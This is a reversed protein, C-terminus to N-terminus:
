KKAGQEVTQGATQGATRDVARDESQRDAEAKRSFLGSLRKTWRVSSDAQYAIHGPISLEVETGTGTRSLVGLKAGIKEARERMGSLGWHGERGAELVHPDIGVGNDRVVICLSRPLYEVEIEIKSAKSHNFANTAAERGIRYAEGRIFPHLPRPLGEAIVRFDIQKDTAVEESIRSFEEELDRSDRQPSRLSRIANRGEESVQRMLQLVREVLAKAPSDAPLRDNAVDLQMSASVFGQLLTDHLDRAIREREELREELRSQMQRALQRMRLNYLLLVVLGLTLLCSIQFWWAQWFAPEIKFSITAESGDWLGDSNSSTVRFRYTGPGLNTYVAQRATTSDTWGHDFGELQYRFRIREPVSLSLGTYNFIIRQSPGPIHIVGQMAVPAGDNSVAEIHPIAPLSSGVREPDIMSIGRNLSFWVHGHQDTVVSHDRRVGEIGHLGDALGYERIDGEKLAGNLLGARNMKLVHSSTGVWLSGKGDEAIGLIPERLSEPLAQVSHIKDSSLIALGGATGIWLTGDPDPLLSIVDDSPLGDHLTYTHLQGHSLASLGGRTGFWMTGDPGEEISAVSNSALGNATTYTTFVGDKLESVGGSLTGAWVTGDRNEHVAYVSNQALGDAQTYTETVPPGQGFVFHTLGGQQRGAWLDDKGGYMSYIVDSGPGAKLVTTVKGDRMWYLGGNSPGFWVRGESDVYIPGNSESPLGESASYTVFPSDRLREIGQVSGIWINGERDERLATIEGPSEKDTEQLVSGDKINLRLLGRSTGIWLNGDRDRMLASIQAHNLSPPIDKTSIATGDWLALGSDTGIWMQGDRLPLLSNIKRDPLGESAPIIQGNSLYFLGDSRTGIWIRGDLTEALSIVLATQFIKSSALSKIEKRGYLIEGNMLNSLLVGGSFTRSMATIFSGPTLDPTIDEFVGNRYRFISGQTRVWLGGEADTTLGLVNTISPFASDLQQATVFNLGDFRFLGKATGIWLYGDPTQTFGNVQGGTFGNEADWQDRAYQSFARNPDVAHAPNVFCVTTLAALILYVLRTQWNRADRSTNSSILSLRQMM